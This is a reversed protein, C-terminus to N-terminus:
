EIEYFISLNEQALTRTGGAAWMESTWCQAHSPNRPNDTYGVRDYKEALTYEKKINEPLSEYVTNNIYEGYYPRAPAEANRKYMADHDPLYEIIKVVKCMHHRDDEPGWPSDIIVLEGIKNKLDAFPIYESLPKRTFREGLERRIQVFDDFTMQNEFSLPETM